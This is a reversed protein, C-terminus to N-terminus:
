VKQNFLPLSVKFYTDTAEVVVAEQSLLDYQAVLSVLGARITEMRITKQQRNNTVQLWGNPTIEISIVLPKSASMSNHKVANDVLTLLSLPLLHCNLHVNSVEAPREIRLCNNYRVQLLDAYLHIFELEAQLTVLESQEISSRGDRLRDTSRGSQLMYRYVRAMKDVFEEAQKPEEGILVSLSNLANFLFHPNLQGKLTDYQHQLAQRQLQEDEQLELKWQAYSYILGLAICLFAAFLLGTVWIPRVISWNFTVGTIPVLSYIWVYFISLVITITGVALLMVITRPITQQMGPYHRIVWRIALTLLFVSVWYLGFALATGVLFFSLNTFYPLGIFYYNAIPFLLPMMFVHWQWERKFFFHPRYNDIAAFASWNTRLPIM